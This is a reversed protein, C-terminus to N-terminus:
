RRALERLYLALIAGLEGIVQSLAAQLFMRLSVPMVDAAAIPQRLRDTLLQFSLHAFRDDAVEGSRNPVQEMPDIHSLRDRAM